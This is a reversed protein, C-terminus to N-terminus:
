SHDLSSLGALVLEIDSNEVAEFVLSKSLEGGLNLVENLSTRSLLSKLLEPHNLLPNDYTVETFMSITVTHSEKMEDIQDQLDELSEKTFKNEGIMKKMDLVIKTVDKQKALNGLQSELSGIKAELLSKTAVDGEKSSAIGKKIDTVASSLQEEIGQIKISNQDLTGKLASTDRMLNAIQESNVKGGESLTKVIAILEETKSTLSGIEQDHGNLREGHAGVQVVLNATVKAHEALANALAPDIKGEKQLKAITNQVSELKAIDRVTNNLYMATIPNSSEPLDKVKKIDEVALDPNGMAIHLKSRDGLYVSSTSDLEIAKNYCSLAKGNYTSDKTAEKLKTFAGGKKYYALANEPNDEIDMDYGEIERELKAIEPNKAKM